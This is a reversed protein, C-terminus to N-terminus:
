TTLGGCQWLLQRGKEDLCYYQLYCSVAIGAAMFIRNRPIASQGAHLAFGPREPFHCCLAFVDKEDPFALARIRGPDNNCNWLDCWKRSLDAVYGLSQLELQQM